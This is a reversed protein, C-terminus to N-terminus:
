RASQDHEGTTEKSTQANTRSDGTRILTLTAIVGLAAIASGALLANTYGETLVQPTPELSQSIHTFAVSSLVALGLAGGIQQSTNILGSALGARNGGVGTMGAVFLPPFALGLGFAAVLAPGLIDALYSGDPAAQGFWALGATLLTMGITLVPKYGFKTVVTPGLGLSTAFITVSM